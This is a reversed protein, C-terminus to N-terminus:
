LDDGVFSILNTEVGTSALAIATNSASGGPRERRNKGQAFGGNIPFSDIEIVTDWSIPGVLWVRKM